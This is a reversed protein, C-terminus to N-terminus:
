SEVLYCVFLMLFVASGPVFVNVHEEYDLSVPTLRRVPYLTYDVWTDAVSVCVTGTGSQTRSWLRGSLQSSDSIVQDQKDRSCMKWKSIGTVLTVIKIRFRFHFSILKWNRDNFNLLCYWGSIRHQNTQASPKNTVSKLFQFSCNRQSGTEFAM